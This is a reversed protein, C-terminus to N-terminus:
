RRVKQIRITDGKSGSELAIGYAKSRQPRYKRMPQKEWIDEGAFESITFGVMGQGITAPTVYARLGTPHNLIPMPGRLSGDVYMLPYERFSGNSKKVRCTVMRGSAYFFYIDDGIKEIHNCDLGARGLQLPPFWDDAPVFENSSTIYEYARLGYVYHDYSILAYLTGNDNIFSFSGALQVADNNNPDPTFSFTMPVDDWSSTSSNFKLIRESRDAFTYEFLACGAFLDGDYVILDLSLYPRDNLSSPDSLRTWSNDSSSNDLVYTHLPSSTNDTSAVIYKRDNFEISKLTRANSGNLGSLEGTDGEALKYFKDASVSYERVGNWATHQNSVLYLKGQHEYFCNGTNIGNAGVDMPTIKFYGSPDGSTIYENITVNTLGTIHGAVFTRGSFDYSTFGLAGYNINRHIFPESPGGNRVFRQLGSDWKLFTLFPADNLFTAVAHVEGNFTIIDGGDGHGNSNAYITRIDSDHYSLDTVASTTPDYKRICVGLNHDSNTAGFATVYINGDEEFLGGGSYRATSPVDSYVQIVFAEEWLETSENLKYLCMNQGWTCIVAIYHGSSTSLARYCVPDRSRPLYQIYDWNSTVPNWKFFHNQSNPVGCGNTGGGHSTLLWYSGSVELIEMTRGDGSIFPVNCSTDMSTRSTLGTNYDFAYTTISHDLLSSTSTRLAFHLKGDIDKAAVSQLGPNTSNIPFFDDSSSLGHGLNEFYDGNRRYISFQSRSNRVESICYFNGDSGSVTCKGDYYFLQQHSFEKDISIEDLGWGDEEDYKYLYNTNGNDNQGVDYYLNNNFELLRASPNTYSSYVSKLNMSRKDDFGKPNLYVFDGVATDQGIKGTVEESGLIENVEIGPEPITLLDDEEGVVLPKGQYTIFQRHM